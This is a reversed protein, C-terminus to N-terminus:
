VKMDVGSPSLSLALWRPPQALDIETNLRSAAAFARPERGQSGGLGTNAAVCRVNSAGSSSFTGTGATASVMFACPTGPNMFAGACRGWQSAWELATACIGM